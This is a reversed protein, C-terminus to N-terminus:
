TVPFDGVWEFLLAVSPLSTVRKDSWVIKWAVPTLHNGMGLFFQNKAGTDEARYKFCCNTTPFTLLCLLVSYLEAM